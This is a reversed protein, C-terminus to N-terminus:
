QVDIKSIIEAAENDFTTPIQLKQMSDLLDQSTQKVWAPESIYRPDQYHTPERYFNISGNHNSSYTIIITGAMTGNSDITLTVTEQPVTVSAEFPLVRHGKENKVATISIPQTKIKYYNIITETVRAYEIQDDSYGSAPFEDNTANKRKQNQNLSTSLNSSDNGISEEQNSSVSSNSDENSRSNETTTSTKLEAPRAIHQASGKKSFYFAGGAVILLIVFAQIAIETRRKSRVALFDDRWQPSNRRQKYFEYTHKTRTWKSLYKKAM